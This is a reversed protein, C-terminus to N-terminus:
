GTPRLDTVLERIQTLDEFEIEVSEDITVEIIMDDDLTPYESRSDRREGVRREYQFVRTDRRGVRRDQKRRERSILEKLEFLTGPMPALHLLQGSCNFCMPKWGGYLEVSRLYRRRKEQCTICRAGLGVPRLEVWRTYCGWCRGRRLENVTARCVECTDSVTHNDLAANATALKRSREVTTGDVRASM